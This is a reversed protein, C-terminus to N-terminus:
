KWLREIPASPTSKLKEIAKKAVDFLERYIEEESRDDSQIIVWSNDLLKMFKREVKKQFSADEYKEEGFLPREKAVEPSVHLFLVLDPRPLGQDARKCWKMSLGKAASFASGSHAYRDAVVNIGSKIAEELETAKEWRNASFILHVARPDIDYFGWLHERLIQGTKTEATRDPFKFLQASLDKALRESQSTKGSKDLGEIAIFIGRQKMM